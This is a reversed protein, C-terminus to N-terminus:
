LKLEQMIAALAKKVPATTRCRRARSEKATM